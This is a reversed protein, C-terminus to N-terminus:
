TQEFQDYYWDTAKQPSQEYLEWFKKTVESPRPVLLSMIKTDFLDRYVISDEILGKQCAFDLM